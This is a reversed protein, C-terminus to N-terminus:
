ITYLGMGAEFFRISAYQYPKILQRGFAAPVAGAAPGLLADLAGYGTPYGPTNKRAKSSIARNSSAQAAPETAAAAVPM